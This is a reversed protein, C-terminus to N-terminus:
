GRIVLVSRKTHRIVREANSGLLFDSHTPRHSAMAILDVDIQDAVEMIREYASGVTVVVQGVAVDDPIHQSVLERLRREVAARTTAEFDRPFYQSVIPLKFDPVVAMFHLTSGFKRAYEVAEPLTKAWSSEENLDIPLLISKYM